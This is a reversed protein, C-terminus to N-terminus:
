ENSEGKAVTEDNNKLAEYLKPGWEPHNRCSRLKWHWENRPGWGSPREDLEEFMASTITNFRIACYVHHYWRESHEEARLWHHKDNGIGCLESIASLYRGKERDLVIKRM